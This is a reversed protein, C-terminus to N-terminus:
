RDMEDNIYDETIDKLEKVRYSELIAEYNKRPKEHNYHIRDIDLKIYNNMKKSVLSYIPNYHNFYYPYIFDEYPINICSFAKSLEHKTTVLESNVSKRVTSIVKIIEDTSYDFTINRFLGLTQKAIELNTYGLNVMLIAIQKFSTLMDDKTINRKFRGNMAKDILKGADKKNFQIWDDWQGDNKLLTNFLVTKYEKDAKETYYEVEEESAWTSTIQRKVSLWEQYNNRLETSDLMKDILGDIIKIVSYLIDIRKQISDKSKGIDFKELFMLQDESLLNGSNLQSKIKVLIAISQYITKQSLRGKGNTAKYILNHAEWLRQQYFPQNYLNSVDRISNRYENEKTTYYASSGSLFISASKQRMQSLQQRSFREIGRQNQKTSWIMFHLHPQKKADSLESMQDETKEHYACLWRLDNPEINAIKAFHQVYLRANIRWDEETDLDCWFADDEKMSIIPLYVTNQHNKLQDKLDEISVYLDSFLGTSGIRKSIYNNYDTLMQYNNKNKLIALGNIIDNTIEEINCSKKSNSLLRKKVENEIEIMEDITEEYHNNILKYTEIRPDKINIFDLMKLPLSSYPNFYTYQPPNKVREIKLQGIGRNIYNIYNMKSNDQNVRSIYILKTIIKIKNPNNM